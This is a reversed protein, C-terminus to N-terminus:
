SLKRNRIIYADSNKSARTKYGKTSVGWPTVPHRGGSTKGEGGGHPHDIPNMVVGRVTPRIGKWRNRGAKGISLNKNNFNSVSGITARCEYHVMRTEGSPMKLIAYVGEVGLLRISTGAARALQAGKGIKLEVNYVLSGVPICRLPMTCGNAIEVGDGSTIRCGVKMESSALIYKKTKNDDDYEVLAILATRNPDYEISKVVAVSYDHSSMKFDIVRYRRKHACAGGRSRVTIRGNNNRAGSKKKGRLLPKYPVKSLSSRDLLVTSRSGPTVGKVKRIGLM